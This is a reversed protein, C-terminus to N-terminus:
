AEKQRPPATAIQVRFQFEVNLLGDPCLDRVPDCRFLRPSPRQDFKPTEFVGALLAVLLTRSPPHPCHALVKVIGQATKSAIGQESGRDDRGKAQADPNRGSDETNHIRNQEAAERICVGITKDRNAKHRRDNLLFKHKATGVVIPPVM